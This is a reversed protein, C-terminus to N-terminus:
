IGGLDIAILTNNPDTVEGADIDPGAVISILSDVYAKVSQQTPVKTPTNSVMNDEDIYELVGLDGRMESYSRGEITDADTFRAYDNAEPTGSIDVNGGGGIVNWKSGSYVLLVYDDADDLSVDKAQSNWINGTNHKVVITRAGSSPRILLVEGEGGGNITDLDDTPGDAQTDVKHHSCTKTIVGAAITLEPAAELAINVKLFNLNDRVHLNLDTSSLIESIWTKPLTWAM